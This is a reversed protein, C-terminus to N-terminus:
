KAELKFILNEGRARGEACFSLAESGKVLLAWSGERALASEMMSAVFLYRETFEARNECAERSDYLLFQVFSDYSLEESQITKVQLPGSQPSVTPEPRATPSDTPMPSPAPTEEPIALEGLLESLTEDVPLREIEFLWSPLPAQRPMRPAFSMQLETPMGWGEPWGAEALSPLSPNGPELLIPASFYDATRYSVRYPAYSANQRSGSYPWRPRFHEMGLRLDEGSPDIPLVVDEWGPWYMTVEPASELQGCVITGASERYRTICKSDDPNPWAPSLGVQIKTCPSQLLLTEGQMAQALEYVGITQTIHCEPYANRYRGRRIEKQPILSLETHLGHLPIDLRTRQPSIRQKGYAYSLGLGGDDVSIKLEAILQQKTLDLHIGDDRLEPTVRLPKFGPVDVRNLAYLDCEGRYDGTEGPDRKLSSCGSVQIPDLLETPVRRLLEPLHIEVPVSSFDLSFQFGESSFKNLEEASITSNLAANGWELTVAEDPLRVCSGGGGGVEPLLCGRMGPAQLWEPWRFLNKRCKSSFEIAENALARRLTLPLFLSCTDLAEGPIYINKPLEQLPFTVIEERQSAQRRGDESEIWYSLGDNQPLRLRYVARMNTLSIENFFLNSGREVGAKIGGISLVEGLEAELCTATYQLSNEAESKKFKGCGSLSMQGSLDEPINAFEEPLRFEVECSPELLLERGHIADALMFTVRIECNSTEYLGPFVKENGLESLPISIITPLGTDREYGPLGTTIGWSEPYRFYGEPLSVNFAAFLETEEPIRLYFSGEETRLSELPIAQQHRGGYFGVISLAGPAEDTNCITTYINEHERQVPGCGVLSMQESLNPLERFSEPLHIEARRPPIAAEDVLVNFKALSGLQRLSLELRARDPWILVVPDAQRRICNIDLTREHILPDNVCGRVQEPAKGNRQINHLTVRHCRSELDFVKQQLVDHLSVDLPVACDDKLAAPEIRDVVLPMSLRGLAVPAVYSQDQPIQHGDRDFFRLHGDSVANRLLVLATMEGVTLQWREQEGRLIQQPIPIEEFGELRLHTPTFNSPWELQYSRRDRRTVNQAYATGEDSLYLKASLDEGIDQFPEPLMVTVSRISDDTTRQPRYTFAEFPRAGGAPGWSPRLRIKGYPWKDLFAVQQEAFLAEFFEPLDQLKQLDRFTRRPETGPSFLKLAEPHTINNLFTYLDDRRALDSPQLLMTFYMEAPNERYTRRSNQSCDLRLTQQADGLVLFYYLPSMGGTTLYPVLTIGVEDLYPTGSFTTKRASQPYLLAGMRLEQNQNFLDSGDTCEWVISGWQASANHPFVGPLLSAGAIMLIMAKLALFPRTKM